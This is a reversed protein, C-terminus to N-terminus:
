NKILKEISIKGLKLPAPELEFSLAMTEYDCAHRAKEYDYPENNNLNYRYVKENAATNSLIIKIEGCKQLKEVPIYAIMPTVGLVAVCEENLWISASVSTDELIIRYLADKDPNEPLSYNAKYTVEGSFHPETIECLDANRKYIKLPEKIFRKASFPKIESIEVKYESNVCIGNYEKDSALFVAMDGCVLNIEANYAKYVKGSSIELKYLNKADIPLLEKVTELGENFIFYLMGGEFVRKMIRLANSKTKLLPEGMGIYPVIKKAVDDPIYKCEPVVIHKYVADGLKLGENTIEAGMIGYDDILDFSIQKEELSKGTNNYACASKKAVDETAWYDAYPVYLATDIVPKGIRMLYCLRKTYDNINKLHYFGPKEERFGGSGLRGNNITLAYESSNFNFINIGRIAEFNVVYRMDDPTKADGYVAFTETLAFGKGTQRAASSAVRPFFHCGEAVPVRNNYPYRIQQWIVDVGPIDYYRLANVASFYVHDISTELFHDLDLHGGFKINHEKCWETIKLCYNKCFLEGLIGAYGIRAEIDKETKINGADYIAPLHDYADYGYREKFMEFFGLPIMRRVVSPEDNFMMPIKDGFWKSLKEYYKEYTNNIFTQTVSPNTSDIRCPHYNDWQEVFYEEIVVDDNAIFNGTIKENNLYSYVNEKLTYADGKKLLVDRKQLMTELAAPNEKVTRGCAGGSPWGGEDYFWMQMGLAEAKECTYNLYEFFEDTLYDPTLSFNGEQGRFNKPIPLVYVGEIGAKKFNELQRDIEDKSLPAQWSWCYMVNCSKDPNDFLKNDFENYIKYKMIGGFGFFNELLLIDFSFFLTLLCKHLFSFAVIYPIYLLLSAKAESKNLM